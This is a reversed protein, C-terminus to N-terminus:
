LISFNKDHLLTFGRSFRYRVFFDQVLCGNIFFVNFIKNPQVKTAVMISLNSRERSKLFAKTVIKVIKHDGCINQSIDLNSKRM